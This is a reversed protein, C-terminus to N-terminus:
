RGNPGYLRVLLINSTGGMASAAEVQIKCEGWVALNWGRSLQDAKVPIIDYINPTRGSAAPALGYRELQEDNQVSSLTEHALVDDGGLYVTAPTIERSNTSDPYISIGILRGEIDIGERVVFKTGAATPNIVEYGIVGLSPANLDDAVREYVVVTMAQLADIEVTIDGGLLAPNWALADNVNDLFWEPAFPLTIQCGTSPIGNFDYQTGHLLCWDRLKTGNLRCIVRTGVKYRIETWSAMLAALTDASSVTAIVQLQLAFLRKMQTPTIKLSATGDGTVAKIRRTYIEAM